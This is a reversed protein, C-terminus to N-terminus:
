YTHMFLCKEKFKTNKPGEVKGEQLKTARQAALICLMKDLHGTGSANSTQMTFLM